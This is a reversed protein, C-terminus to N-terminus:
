ISYYDKIHKLSLNLIEKSNKKRYCDDWEIIKKVTQDMTLYTKWNLYRRSKKSNITLYPNENHINKDIIKYKIKKNKHFLEVLKRVSLSSSASPGFNWAYEDTNNKKSYLYEILKLYGYLPEFVHQWPRVHNSNRINLITNTNYSNIIDPVLRNRSFDGGGIVNGSRVVCYKSKNKKFNNHSQTLLDSCVKSIGYPDNSNLSDTEKYLFKSKKEQYVKDTTVNIFIKLNKIKNAIELLNITGLINVKFNEYTNKSANIVLSQAAMHIIIDPQVKKCFKELNNYDVINRYLSKSLKKNLDLINYLKQDKNPKLSYGFVECGLETLLLSLWSGKFGTHGTLLVKKNKWFKKNIKVLNEM